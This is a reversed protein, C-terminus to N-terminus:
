ICSSRALTLLGDIDLHHELEAALENLATDVVHAHDAGSSGAGIRSLLAARLDAAGLLGHCYTGLVLGDASIAGDPRGDEIRAFPLATGAGTTQGMHMEYGTFAAGLATGAVRHLAKDGRLETEVDLLGLGAIEQSPGEIGLPDAIRRGLMQYGGCIGLVAGGRRHHARIDIDWGQDRLFAM